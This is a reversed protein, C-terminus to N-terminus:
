ISHCTATKQRRSVTMSRKEIFDLTFLSARNSFFVFCFLLPLSLKSTSALSPVSKQLTEKPAFLKSQLLRPLLYQTELSKSRFTVRAFTEVDSSRHFSPFLGSSFPPLPSPRAGGSGDGLAM